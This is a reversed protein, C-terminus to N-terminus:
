EGEATQDYLDNVHWTLARGERTLFAISRGDSSFVPSAVMDYPGITEEDLVLYAGDEKEGTYALHGGDPSYIPTGVHDWLFDSKKRGVVLWKDDTRAAYAVADEHPHLVMQTIDDFRPQRFFGVVCFTKDEDKALYIPDGSPGFLPDFADVVEGTKDNLLAHEIGKDLGTAFAGGKPGLIVSGIGDFGDSKRSGVVLYWKRGRRAKYVLRDDNTFRFRGGELEDFWDGHGNGFWDAPRSALWSAPATRVVRVDDGNRVLYAVYSSGPSWAFSDVDIEGQPDLREPNGDVVLYLGDGEREALYAWRTGNPSFLIHHNVIRVPAAPEQAGLEQADVNGGMIWAESPAGNVNETALTAILRGRPSFEIEHDSYTQLENGRYLRYQDGARASYIPTEGSWGLRLVRDVRPEYAEGDLVVFEKGADSAIYAIHTNRLNTQLNTDRALAHGPVGNVIVHREGNAASVYALLAGDAAALTQHRKPDIPQGSKADILQIWREGRLGHAVVTSGVFHVDKIADFADSMRDGVHLRWKGLKFTAYLPIDVQPPTLWVLEQYPGEEGHPTGVVLAGDSASYEKAGKRSVRGYRSAVFYLAKHPLPLLHRYPGVIKDDYVAAYAADKRAVYSVRQGDSRASWIEAAVSQPIPTLARQVFQPEHAQEAQAGAGLLVFTSVAILSLRKM